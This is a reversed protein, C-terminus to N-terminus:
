NWNESKIQFYEFMLSISMFIYTTVLACSSMKLTCYMEIKLHNHLSLLLCLGQRGIKLDAAGNEITNALFSYKLPM